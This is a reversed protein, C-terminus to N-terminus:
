VWAKDRAITMYGEWPNLARQSFVLYNEPLVGRPFYLIGFNPFWDTKLQLMDEWKGNPRLGILHSQDDKVAPGPEVTTAMYLGGAQNQCTYYAPGPLEFLEQADLLRDRKGKMIFSTVLPSDMGWILDGNYFIMDTTRYKQEGGCVKELTVFNDETVYFNSENDNDGTFVWIRNSAQPDEVIAHVHRVEKELFEWAVEFTQM